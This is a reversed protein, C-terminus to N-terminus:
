TKWVTSVDQLHGGFCPQSQKSRAPRHLNEQSIYGKAGPWVTASEFGPEPHVSPLSDAAEHRDRRAGIARKELTSDTVNTM